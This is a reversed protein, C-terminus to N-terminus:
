TNQGNAGEDVAMLSIFFTSGKGPESELWVKGRHLEMIKKVINLGLGEGTNEKPSLRHFIEFIIQQHEQAIGQGNDAVSYISRDGDSFGSVKIEGQRDTDM